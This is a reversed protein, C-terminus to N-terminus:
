NWRSLPLIAESSCDGLIWIWDDRYIQKLPPSSLRVTCAWLAAKLKLYLNRWPSPNYLSTKCKARVWNRKLIKLVVSSSKPFFTIKKKRRGSEVFGQKHNTAGGAKIFPSTNLAQPGRLRSQKWNFAQPRNFLSIEGMVSMCCRLMELDRTYCQAQNILKINTFALCAAQLYMLALPYDCYLLFGAKSPECTFM